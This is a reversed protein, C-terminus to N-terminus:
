AAGEEPKWYTLGIIEDERQPYRGCFWSDEREIVRQMFILGYLLRAKHWDEECAVDYIAQYPKGTWDPGPIWSTTHIRGSDLVRDIEDNIEDQQQRSLRQYHREFFERHTVGTIERRSETFLSM